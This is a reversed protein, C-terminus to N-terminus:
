HFLQEFRILRYLLDSNWYLRCSYWRSKDSTIYCHNKKICIVSLSVSTIQRTVLYVTITILLIVFKLTEDKESYLLHGDGFGGRPNWYISEIVCCPNGSRFIVRISETTGVCSYINIAFPINYELWWGEWLAYLINAAITMNTWMLMCWFVIKIIPLISIM